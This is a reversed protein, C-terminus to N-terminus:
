NSIEIEGAKKLVFRSLVPGILEHIVTAGIIVNLLINSFHSFATNQCIILALGIVIGGQPILGGATYQRVKLAAKGISAGIFVGAFKGIARLLVFVLVIGFSRYLVSFQLHMGSVTFFLVFFLQETYRELVKFIKEKKPNFNVVVIGMTMTALLEDLELVRALGFCLSLLGLILVIFIGESEKQIWMTILNFLFGFGIGLAVAGGIVLLPHFFAHSSFSKHLVFAGAL